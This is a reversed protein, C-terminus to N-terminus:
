LTFIRFSSKILKEPNTKALNEIEVGGEKSAIIVPKRAGRDVSVTIFFENFIEAKEEILLHKVKEGKIEMGLIEDSVKLAEGPNNAFKVGGAKGRGGTLVQAKVVVPINMESSVSMAEEPSYVVHGELIPIGERNFIRKAVNEFFKM